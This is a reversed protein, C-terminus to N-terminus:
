NPPFNPPPPFFLIFFQRAFVILAHTIFLHCPFSSELAFIGEKRRKMKTRREENKMGRGTGPRGNRRRTEESGEGRDESKKMKEWNQFDGEEMVNKKQNQGKEAGGKWEVDMGTWSGEEEDGM